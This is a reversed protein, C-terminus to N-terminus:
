KGLAQYEQRAQGLVPLDPDADKWREFLQEYTRRSGAGDGARALTRALELQAFPLLHRGPDINPHALIKEFAARAMTWNGALAL